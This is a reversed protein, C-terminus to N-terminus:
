QPQDFNENTKDHKIKKHIEDLTESDSKEEMVNNNTNPQIIKEEEMVNNDTNPHIIMKEGEIVDDPIDYDCYGVTVASKRGENIINNRLERPSINPWCINIIKKNLLDRCSDVITALTCKGDVGDGMFQKEIEKKCEESLLTSYKGVHSGDLAPYVCERIPRDPLGTNPNKLSAISEIAQKWSVKEFNITTDITTNKFSDLHKLILYRTTGYCWMDDKILKLHDINSAHQYYYNEAYKKVLEMQKAVTIYWNLSPTEKSACSENELKSIKSSARLYIDECTIWERLFPEMRMISLM